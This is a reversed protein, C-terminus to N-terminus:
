RRAFRALGERLRDAAPNNGEGFLVIQRAALDRGYYARNWESRASFLSGELSVGAFLGRTRAITVIDAGLASTTAGQVGAGLTAVSIGVDGGFTFQSDLLASLARESRVIMLIAMDQVGIQFGVGAGGMAFFAPSTWNGDLTRGVMVCGGGRGGFVFGARFIRPCIVVGKAERLLLRAQQELGPEGFALLEPLALTAQDVLTQAEVLADARATPAAFLLLTALFARRLM